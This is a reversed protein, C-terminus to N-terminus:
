SLGHISREHARSPHLLDFLLPRRAEKSPLGESVLREELTDLALGLHRPDQTGLAALLENAANASDTLTRLEPELWHDTPVWRWELAFLIRALARAGRAALLATAAAFGRARTKELRTMAIYADLTAHALRAHRFAAPMQRAANVGATVLGDADFLIAAREFLWHDEDRWSQAKSTLHGLTNYEADYVVRRSIPDILVEFYDGGNLGSFTSDDVYVYLDDDSREDSYAAAKSGVLVVGKVSPDNLWLQVRKVTRSDLAPLSPPNM